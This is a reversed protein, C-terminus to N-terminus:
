AKGERKRDAEQHKEWWDALKRAMKKRGDYMIRDRYDRHMAQCAFCLDATMKDLMKVDGYYEKAANIAYNPPQIDMGESVYVILEAVLKSEREREDPEMYDSKCPM